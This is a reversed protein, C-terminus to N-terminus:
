ARGATDFQALLAGLSAECASPKPNPVRVDTLADDIKGDIATWAAKDKPKLSAEAKDWATELDKARARAAPIDGKKVLALTDAAITRFLSLDGLASAALRLEAPRPPAAPAALSSGAVLVAGVASAAARAPTNRILRM